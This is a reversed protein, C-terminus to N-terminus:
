DPFGGPHGGIAAAEADATKFFTKATLEAGLIEGLAVREIGNFDGAGLSQLATSPPLGYVEAGGASKCNSHYQDNPPSRAAM